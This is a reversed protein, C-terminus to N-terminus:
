NQESQKPQVKRCKLNSRATERVSEVPLVVGLWGEHAAGGEAVV